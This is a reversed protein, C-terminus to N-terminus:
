RNYLFTIFYILILAFGSCSVINKESKGIIKNVIINKISEFITTEGWHTANSWLTDCSAIIILSRDNDDAGGHILVSGTHRIELSKIKNWATKSIEVTGYGQEKGIIRVNNTTTCNYYM